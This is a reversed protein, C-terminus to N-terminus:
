IPSCFKMGVKDDSSSVGTSCSPPCFSLPPSCFIRFASKIHKRLINKPHGAITLCFELFEIPFLFSLQPGVHFTRPASYHGDKGMHCNPGGRGEISAFADAAFRVRAIKRRPVSQFDSVNSFEQKRMAALM